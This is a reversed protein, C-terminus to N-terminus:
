HRRMKITHVGLEDTPRTMDLNLIEYGYTLLKRVVHGGVKGSGGTFVIRKSAM